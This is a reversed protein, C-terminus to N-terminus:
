LIVKKIEKLCQTTRIHPFITLLKALTKSNKLIDFFTFIVNVNIFIQDIM